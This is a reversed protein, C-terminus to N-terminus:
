LSKISKKWRFTSEKCDRLYQINPSAPPHFQHFEIQHVLLVDRRKPAPPRGLNGQISTWNSISGEPAISRYNCKANWPTVLSEVLALCARCRERPRRSRNWERNARSRERWAVRASSEILVAFTYYVNAIISGYRTNVRSHM